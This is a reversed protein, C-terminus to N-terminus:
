AIAGPWSRGSAPTIKTLPTTSVTPVYVHLRFGDRRHWRLRQRMWWLEIKLSLPADRDPRGMAEGVAKPPLEDGDHAYGVTRAKLYQERLSPAGGPARGGTEVHGAYPQERLVARVERLSQARKVRENVEQAADRVTSAVVRRYLEALVNRPGGVPGEYRCGPRPCSVRLQDDDEDYTAAGVLEDGFLTHGCLLRVGLRTTDRPVFAM